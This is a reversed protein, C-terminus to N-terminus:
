PPADRSRCISATLRPTSQQHQQEDEGRGSARRPRVEGTADCTGGRAPTSITHGRGAAEVVERADALEREAGDGVEHEVLGVAKEVQAELGLYM